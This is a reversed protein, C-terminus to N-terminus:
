AEKHNGKGKSTMIAAFSRSPKRQKNLAVGLLNAYPQPDRKIGDNVLTWIKSKVIPDNSLAAQVDHALKARDNGSLRKGKTLGHLSGVQEFFANRLRMVNAKGGMIKRGQLAGDLLPLILAHAHPASEDLHIDFSLLEGDIMQSVWVCCDSFFATNDRDRRNEPLSFIVEIAMVANARPTIDHELLTMRVHKDIAKPDSMPTLAYNLHSRSTDIHGREPLDRKNHRLAPLLGGRANNVAGLRFFGSDAPM